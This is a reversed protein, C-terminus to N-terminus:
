ALNSSKRCHQKWQTLRLNGAQTTCQKDTIHSAYIPTILINTNDTLTYIINRNKLGCISSVFVSVCLGINLANGSVFVLYCCVVVRCGTACSDRVWELVIFSLHGSLLVACERGPLFVCSLWVCFRLYCWIYTLRYYLYVLLELM